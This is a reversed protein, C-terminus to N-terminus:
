EIGAAQSGKLETFMDCLFMDGKENTIGEALIDKRWNDM